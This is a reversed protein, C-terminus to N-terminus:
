HALPLNPQNRSVGLPKGWVIIDDHAPESESVHLAKSGASPLFPTLCHSRGAAPTQDPSPHPPVAELNRLSHTCTASHHIHESYTPLYTGLSATPASFILDILDIPGAWWM